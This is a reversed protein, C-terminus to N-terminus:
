RMLASRVAADKAELLKRLATGREPCGTPLNLCLFEAMEYFPRSFPQLREPLHSFAFCQLRPEM